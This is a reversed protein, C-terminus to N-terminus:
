HLNKRLTQTVHYRWFENSQENSWLSSKEFRLTVTKLARKNQNGDLQFVSSKKLTKVAIIKNRIVRSRILALNFLFMSFAILASVSHATPM